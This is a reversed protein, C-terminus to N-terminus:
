CAYSRRQFHIVWALDLTNADRHVKVYNSIQLAAVRFLVFQRAQQDGTALSLPTITSEIYFPASRSCFSKSILSKSSILNDM